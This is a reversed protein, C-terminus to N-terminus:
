PKAHKAAHAPSEIKQLCGLVDIQIQRGNRGLVWGGVRHDLLGIRNAHKLNFATRLHRHQRAQRRAVEVIKHDLDSDHPRTRDLAVHHMGIQAAAFALFRHHKGLGLEFLHEALRKAHREKLFLRHLDAITAAPKEAM